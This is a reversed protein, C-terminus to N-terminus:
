EKEWIDKMQRKLEVLVKNGAAMIVVSPIMRKLIASSTVFVSVEEEPRKESYPELGEPVVESLVQKSAGYIALKDGVSAEDAHEIYIEILVDCTRGKITNGKLPETPLQYLTDLKYVSDTKDYKDLIKRRERNKKYYDSFINFLSPSLKDMSKVTYMRVETVTGAHKARIIRKANDMVDNNGSDKNQFAKLFNDVAKDGTDGLGFVILPDGIEVETGPKVISEVNDTANLKTDEMITLRTELKKSMKHTILGSDEYTSYLGMFAVKALPGINMRVVGTSDKSFFKEHYALIDGKQFSQGVEFNSLLKNDVYFGSGSNFSNTHGINVAKRKGSKFQIIMYNDNMDIVKGSEPAVYSFEETLYAPVIEDVGNSILCPEAGATSIIHGTQSTAIATRIADDRSVTGPTLLESFSALQLDNYDADVGDTSTYGRVSEIKPDAVLQRSIGVNGSNPSSLAVKGIMSDEYTRKAQTYARDNNVGKFGKKTINERLHLEIMPNLASMPEVNPVALLENIVENPNMVLSNERTKSGPTNNYKSIAFALKFHIIAPIIESSRIRYLAANNESSHNNDALLNSSYILMGVIDDPLNYHHCVDATIADVFFNYYTIFTTLQSYQKFFLQNFIDVYISNTNMIPVEFDAMNYAKTNLRYFGNFLLQANITNQIAVIKDKFRITFFKTDNFNNDVFQYKMNTKKLFASFGEWAACAVGLPVTVGIKIESYMSMKGPKQKRYENKLIEPLTSVIIDTITRGDRSLGTDTNIIIPVKNIMGCCFENDDVTVFSYMKGCQVRSFYLELAAEKNIFSYWKAGYEDYEITSMFRTNTASSNGVKVYPNRGNEDTAKDIVKVLMGLDVLSRTDYRTCSIKNYNSTLIVAKNSIKLIPIPFDQKGINYWIGNNYFRGNMLKPVRINIVNQKDSEKNKLTIRWNNMLTTVTSIDTVEVKTVYFGGPIKSFNMFTAVIDRDLLKNEYETTVGTFSSGKAAGPNTTTIHLPKLPEPKPVDNISNIKDFTINGLKVQGVQARIKRERESSIANISSNDVVATEIAKAAINKEVTGQVDIGLDSTTKYHSVIETAPNIRKILQSNIDITKVSYLEPNMSDNITNDVIASTTEEDTNTNYQDKLQALTDKINGNVVNNDDNISEVNENTDVDDDNNNDIDDNDDAGIVNPSINKVIAGDKPDVFDTSSAEPKSSLNLTIGIKDLMDKLRDRDREEFHLLDFKYEYKDHKFVLMCDISKIARMDSLLYGALLANIIDANFSEDSQNKFIKYREANIKLIKTKSFNFFNMIKSFIFFINQKIREKPQKRIYGSAIKFVDSMPIFLGNTITRPYPYDIIPSENIFVDNVYGVRKKYTLPNLTYVFPKIEIDSRIKYPIIVKKDYVDNGNPWRKIMEMDYEFSDSLLFVTINDKKPLGYGYLQPIFNVGRSLDTTSEQIIRM